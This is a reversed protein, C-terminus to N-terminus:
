STRFGPAVIPNRGSRYELNPNSVMLDSGNSGFYEVGSSRAIM